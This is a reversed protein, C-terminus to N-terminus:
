ELDNLADNSDTIIKKTFNYVEAIVEKTLHKSSIQIGTGKEHFSSQLVGSNLIMQYITVREQQTLSICNDRIYMFQENADLTETM